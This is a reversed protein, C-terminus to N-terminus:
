RDGFNTTPEEQVVYTSDAARVEVAQAILGGTLHTVVATAAVLAICAALVTLLIKANPPRRRHSGIWRRNTAIPPPRGPTAAAPADDAAPLAPMTGTSTIAPFTGTTPPMTGTSAATQPSNWGDPDSWHFEDAGPTMARVGPVLVARRGPEVQRSSDWTSM